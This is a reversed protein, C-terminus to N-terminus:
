LWLSLNLRFNYIHREAFRYNAQSTLSLNRSIEWTGTLGINDTTSDSQIHSAFLSLRTKQNNILQLTLNLDLRDSKDNDLFYTAYGGRLSLIESPRYRLNLIADGTQGTDTDTKSHSYSTLLDAALYRYLQANFRLSNTISTIRKVFDDLQLTESDTYNLNWTATLDPYILARTAIYYRDSIFNLQQDSYRENRVAGLTVTVTDLPITFVTLAYNRSINEPGADSDSLYESFSLAPSVFPLPTWRLNGSITRRNSDITDDGTDLENEELTLNASARLSRSIQYGMGLNTLYNTNTSSISETIQTFAQLASFTLPGSPVNKAVLIIETTALGIAIDISDDEDATATGELNDLALEWDDFTDNRTYLEWTLELALQVSFSDVLVLRVIDIQEDTGADFYLHVREDVEVAQPLPQNPVEYDDEDPKLDNPSGPITIKAFTEGLLPLDFFGGEDGISVNQTSYGFQQALNFRLRNNWFVGETDLRAFHSDSESLSNGVPDERKNNNYQYSFQALILDWGLSAGTNIEKEGSTPFLSIGEVPESFESYSFRLRPWLPISWMSVLSAEWASQSSDGGESSRIDTRGSVQASFIDNVLSVQASPNLSDTTVFGQDRGFDSESRTYGVAASASIAHSPRFRIAQGLGLSYRQQFETLTERDEAGSQKYSWYANFNIAFAPSSIGTLFFLLLLFAGLPSISWGVALWRSNRTRATKNQCSIQPLLGMNIGSSITNHQWKQ